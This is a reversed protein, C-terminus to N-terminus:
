ENEINEKTHYISAQIWELNDNIEQFKMVVDPRGTRGKLRSVLERTEQLLAYEAELQEITVEKERDEHELKEKFEETFINETM